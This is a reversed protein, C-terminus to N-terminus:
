RLSRRKLHELQIELVLPNFPHISVLQIAHFLSRTLSVGAAGLFNSPARSSNCASEHVRTTLTSVQSTKLDVRPMTDNTDYGSHVKITQEHKKLKKDLWFCM